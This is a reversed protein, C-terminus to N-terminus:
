LDNSYNREGIVTFIKGRTFFLHRIYQPVAGAGAGDNEPTDTSVDIGLVLILSCDVILNKKPLQTGTLALEEPAWSKLFYRRLSGEM